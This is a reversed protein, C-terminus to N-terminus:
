EVVEIQYRREEKPEGRYSQKLTITAKGPSLAKFTFVKDAADAGTKGKREADSKRYVVESNVLEVIQEDSIEYAATFGVSGHVFMQVSFQKGQEITFTKSEDLSYELLPNKQAMTIGAFSFWVVALWYSKKSIMSFLM